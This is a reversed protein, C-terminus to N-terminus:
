FLLRVKLANIIHKQSCYEKVCFGLLIADVGLFVAEHLFDMTPDLDLCWLSNFIM